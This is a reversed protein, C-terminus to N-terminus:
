LVRRIDSLASFKERNLHVTQKAESLKLYAIERVDLAVLAMVDLDSEDYSRRGGKGCRRIHFLYAPTHAKRQPIPRVTRTTKVQVRILSGNVEVAVDYPCNQDTLFANYGKLLLDACVLHEGAVGLALDTVVADVKGLAPLIERCDGLILRCDGIIEERYIV